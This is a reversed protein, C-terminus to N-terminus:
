SNYLLRHIGAEWHKGCTITWNLKSYSIDLFVGSYLTSKSSNWLYWFIKLLVAYIVTITPDTGSGVFVNLVNWLVGM